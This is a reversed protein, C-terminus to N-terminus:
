FFNKDLEAQVEPWNEPYVTYVFPSWKALRNLTPKQGVRYPAKASRKFEIVGWAGEYLFTTDPCGVPVGPAARNVVVYAGKKRLHSRVKSAFDREKM